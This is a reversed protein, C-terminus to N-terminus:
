NGVRVMRKTLTGYPTTLEYFLVGSATLGDLRLKEVSPGAPYDGDQQWLLRGTADFVRLQAPCGEPLVFGIATENAFPNPQNQLLFYRAGDLDTTGTYLGYHLEVDAAELGSTFATAPLAGPDLQLVDSLLMGSELATFRLRFAPTGAAVAAGPTRAWVARIQGAALNWLGFDGPGVPMGGAEPQEVAEFRLRLPDFRLAFQWAALDTFGDASFIVDVSQGSELLQDPARLVLPGPGPAFNSPVATQVVDGIKVGYFDQDPQDSNVGNLNIQEPFGWPPLVPTWAQTVFRWSRKWQTFVAPNGLILQKILTADMTSISNSGNVDAAIQRYADTIPNINTLHQQIALADNVAVGNLFNLDKVPKITLNGGQCVTGLYEGNVDTTGSGTDDGTINVTADKVGASFDGTWLITGSIDLKPVTVMFSCTQQLSGADTVTYEVTTVGGMFLQGSAQGSGSGTTAGSFTYALTAGPCNDSFTADIGTAVASCPPAAGPPVTQNAPCSLMPPENDVVTVAQQCIATNGAADTATWTVTTVGKPFDAPANNITNPAGCNDSAVPVGLVVGTATCFGTGTNVVVAAPCTIDPNSNDNVTVTFCCETSNGGGDEALYCISTVGLPFEDGSNLIMNANNGPGDSRTVVVPCNDSGAPTNWSVIAGCPSPTALDCTYDLDDLQTSAGGVTNENVFLFNIGKAVDFTGTYRYNFVATNGSGGGFMTGSITVQGLANVNLTVDAGYQGGVSPFCNGCSISNDLTFPAITAGPSSATQSRAVAGDGNDILFIGNLHLQDGDAFMWRVDNDLGNRTWSSSFSLTIADGTQFLGAPIVPIKIMIQNPPDSSPFLLSTGSSPVPGNPFVVGPMTLLDVPENILSTCATTNVGTNAVINGPCSITPLQNDTVTVVIACTTSSMAMGDTVTWTITTAGKPFDAGALTALSNFDNSVTAGPCNDGFAAPDFETGQVTYDCEGADTNRAFPSGAPCTITPLQNDSVTVTQQCTATNGYPDTATWTINTTGVPYTGSANSTNTFSNVFNLTAVGGVWNSAPGNLTFNALTANGGVTGTATTLGANNGEAVGQNFNYYMALGPEAGTLEMDKTGQIEFQTRAIDWIRVEDMQIASFLGLGSREVALQIQRANVGTIAAVGTAELNGDLYLRSDTGDVVIAVHHWNQDNVNTTGVVGIGDTGRVHGNGDFNLQPRPSIQSPTYVTIIGSYNQDDFGPKTRIWAEWTFTNDLNFNGVTRVYDNVGDFDLANGLVGSCNDTVTPPTVTAPGTCLGASANVSVPDACTIQPSENDAVTVTFSVTTASNTGDTASLEVITVGKNFSLVGSGTGDAIGTASGATAGSIMYGWTAGTCNDSVPDAITYNATCLGPATNLNQNGPNTLTPAQNDVVTVTQQCTATNGSADSGTWTIVTSGVPYIGSANCANNFDNSLSVLPLPAGCTWNSECPNPGAGTLAFNTLTGNIASPSLDPLTTEGPNASCTVGENFNYYAILGTENGTLEQSMTAQIAAQSRVFNWVRIEDLRGHSYSISGYDLYGLRLPATNNVFGNNPWGSGDIDVTFPILVGDVYVQIVESGSSRLDLSIAVHHWTGATLVPNSGLTVDNSGGNEAAYFGVKDGSTYLAWNRLTTTNKGIIGFREGVDVNDVYVWAEFTLTKLGDYTTVDGMDVYDNVGDFFLAQNTACNDTFDPVPVTVNATCQGADNNQSIAAPCTLVPAESDAVTVTFVCTAQSVCGNTATVTVTTNGKNFVAGSGTGSGSGTTAGAFTYTLTSAPSGTATVTYNVVATCQGADMNVTMPAAPCTSFVPPVCTATVAFDYAAENCDDNNVTITATQVTADTPNYTVTFTASNNGAVTAPAGSVVFKANDSGIGIITLPANDTNQITFTRSFAGDFDTHDASSPSNDGDGIDMGNGQVNIENNAGPRISVTAANYNAVALDQIGDSNFDGVAVSRPGSGVPVTSTGSFDGLGDGLRISVTTASFNAVALDQKGDGNFDGIAVSGPGSPIVLNTSGSFAGLGDGLRISVTNSGSNAVAFDQNGDGNFDGIVVSIPSTGVSVNTPSGLGGLGDGLLISVTAAGANSVALDQNGDENFDGIAVSNAFTGTAVTASSSFGGLGDGLYVGVSGSANRVVAFDQKGDNNFDGIAVSYPNGPVSVNTTGSFGGAGDGLRISVTNSGFNAAAFDQNGDGNFDGIAVSRPTTGVTVNTPGSFGGLGDGLRISVTNSGANAAAFDQKGDGNFDGTAVWFPQTAVPVNTTGVFLPQCRAAPDTVTLTFTATSTGGGNFATLTVTYTGAPIADIVSVVGTAPNSTLVGTFNTNAAVTMRTAGVPAADPTVTTNQGAVVTSNPYVGLVPVPPTTGTLAFDYVGEDCDNNNITITANQTGAAIPTFTVTFSASSNAAVTTPASSVAFRVNDSTISSITLPANDTNQITFTRALGTNIDVAGYDTHDNTSPTNDGDAIDMGNGQVNIENNVGLRVTLTGSTIFNSAVLDQKGDSNFDGVAVSRPASGMSLNASLNFNGAGDGLYISVTNSAANASAFDQNGDGNFDGVAVFWPQTGVALDTSGNFGGMGDGLRISVTNSTGNAVALDQFGDENFDGIAVAYPASGVTINTASGFGGLGDGLCISVTNAGNNAVAIDQKGDGNFDGVTVGRPNAGVAIETSGSFGGVGDGLRISVTNAFRNAAVFDQKGDSNFDGIAVATPSAGVSVNTSGSFGGAGDGLRISVTNVDYNAAALDQKGDGNFDGIAVAIAGSGTTINTSGSFGGLGDGLRISVLSTNFNATALDQIGDGNFDGIGISHAGSLASVSTTGSFLAQCSQPDTVTLTFTATTSGNSNFATVTVSYVGTQKADIVSVVGTTPDATLVGTFNTNAAVMLQTAGVPAADPTITTNGGAIVGAGPYVGLTPAATATGPLDGRTKVPHKGNAANALLPLLLFLLVWAERNCFATFCNIEKKM